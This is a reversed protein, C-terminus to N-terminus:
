NNKWAPDDNHTWKVMASNLSDALRELRSELYASPLRFTTDLEIHMFRGEDENGKSCQSGGNLQHAQVNTNHCGTPRRFLLQDDPGKPFDACFSFKSYQVGDPYFDSNPNPPLPDEQFYEAISLGFLRAGSKNQTTFNSNFGNVVLMHMEEHKVMGHVQVFFAAPYLSSLIAHGKHFVTSVSHAADSIKHPAQCSANEDSANRHVSNLILVRAKTQAMLAVSARLTGDYGEHPSELILPDVPNDYTTIDGPVKVAGVRWFFPLGQNSVPGYFFVINTDDVRCAKMKLGVRNIEISVLDNEDLAHFLGSINKVIKTSPERYVAVKAGVVPNALGVLNDTIQGDIKCRTSSYHNLVDEPTNAFSTNAMITSFAFAFSFCRSFKM